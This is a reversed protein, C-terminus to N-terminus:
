IASEAESGFVPKEQWYAHTMKIQRVAFGVEDEGEAVQHLEQGLGMLEPGPLHDDVSVVISSLMPRGEGVEHRSIEALRETIQERAAPDNLDLGLLEAVEGYFVTERARAATMLRDYLAQDFM